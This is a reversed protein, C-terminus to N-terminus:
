FVVLLLRKFSSTFCLFIRPFGFYYSVFAFVLFAIAIILNSAMNKISFVTSENFSKRPKLFYTYCRYLFEWFGVYTIALIWGFFLMFLINAGDPTAGGELFTQDSALSWKLHAALNMLAYCSCIAIVFKVNQLDDSKDLSKPNVFFIILPTLLMYSFFAYNM